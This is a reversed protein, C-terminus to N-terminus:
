YRSTCGSAVALARCLEAMKRPPVSGVYRFLDAQRGPWGLVEPDTEFEDDAPPAAGYGRRYADQIARRRKRRLRDEIAARLFASRGKKKVEDDQDVRRLLAEDITFQIAKM